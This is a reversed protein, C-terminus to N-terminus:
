GGLKIGHWESQVVFGFNALAFNKGGQKGLANLQFNGPKIGGGLYM